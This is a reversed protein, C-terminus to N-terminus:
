NAFGLHPLSRHSPWRAAGTLEGRHRHQAGPLLGLWILRGSCARNTGCGSAAGCGSGAERTLCAGRMHGLARSGPAARQRRTVGSRTRRGYAAAARPRPRNPQASQSRSDGTSARLWGPQAETGLGPFIPSLLAPPDQVPRKVQEQRLKTM